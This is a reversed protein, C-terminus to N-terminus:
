QDILEERMKRQEAIVPTFRVAQWMIKSFIGPCIHLKGKAARRLTTRVVYGPDSAYYDPMTKTDPNGFTQSKMIPTKSWFPYVISSKIGYREVEGHTAMAFARLGFKSASYAVGYPTAVFGAVSSVYILHGSRNSIMQPLFLKNLRIAALLNLNVTKEINVLPVDVFAGGYGIGANHVIVDPFKEVEMVKNYLNLCGESTSLDAPIQAIIKDQVWAESPESSIALDSLILDAGYSALQTFFHRGFGGFAGTLLVTKGKYYKM